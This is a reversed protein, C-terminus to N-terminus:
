QCDKPCNAGTEPCPCGQAMCVIEQCEGDGCLDKCMGTGQGALASPGVFILGEATVCSPPMSKRVANGAAVCEAFNTIKTVAPTNQACASLSIGLISVFFLISSKM